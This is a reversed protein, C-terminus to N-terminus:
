ARESLDDFGDVLGEFGLEVEFAVTCSFGVTDPGADELPEKSEGCGDPVVFVGVLGAGGSGEDGVVVSGKSSIM